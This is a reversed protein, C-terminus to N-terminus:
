LQLQLNFDVADGDMFTDHLVSELDMEVCRLASQMDFDGSELHEISMGDLDSPLRESRSHQAINQGPTPRTFGTRTSHYAPSPENPHALPQAPCLQTYTRPSGACGPHSLFQPRCGNLTVTAPSLQRYQGQPYPPCHPLAQHHHPHLPPSPVPGAVHELHGPPGQRTYLPQLGGRGRGGAHSVMSEMCLLPADHSVADPNTYHGLLRGMGAHGAKTGSLHRMPVIAPGTMPTQTYLSKPYEPPPQTPTPPGASPLAYPHRYCVNSQMMPPTRLTEQPQSNASLLNLNNLLGEMRTGGSSQCGFSGSVEALSPLPAGMKAESAVQYGLHAEDDEDLEDPEALFPSRRGSLTSADSSARGRFSTWEDFTDNSQSSPSGGLWASYQSYQSGPSSTDEEVARQVSVKKKAARGRSKALKSNNDMSAARRRPPKGSRSGEPNLMWWSSKGTGENQVRVFRSHLSLNHRISNKWGASSNSDGKDKFYPVSQVMWDYIQSLTLRKEPSSDIAKSILDAYSLNGWANRRSSTGKKQSPVSITNSGNPLSLSPFQKQRPLQPSSQHQLVRQHQQTAHHHYCNESFDSCLVITKKDTGDEIEDVLTPQGIYDVCNGQEQKVSPAPSSTNSSDPETFEPRPLPWTCSRPRSVPEFDPDIDTREQSSVSDAM